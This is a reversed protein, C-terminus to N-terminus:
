TNNNLELQYRSLVLALDRGRVKGIVQVKINQGRMPIVQSGRPLNVLEPGKEGVLSLGGPAFNTGEAFGMFSGFGKGIIKGAGKALSGAGGSILDLLLFVAAKAAMFALLRKLESMMSNIMGKFGGEVNMFMAQFTNQLAEVALQQAALNEVLQPISSKALGSGQPAFMSVDARAFPEARKIEGGAAAADVDKIKGEVTTLQKTLRVLDQEGNSIAAFYEGITKIYNEFEDPKLTDELQKFLELSGLTLKLTRLEEKQADTLGKWQSTSFYTLEGIRKKIGEIAVSNEGFFYRYNGAIKRIAAINYAAEESTWQERTRFFDETIKLRDALEEVEVTTIAKQANIAEQIYQAKQAPDTTGAAGMRASQLEGEYIAKRVTNSASIMGLEQLATKLNRTAEATNVINSILKDWDGTVITRFLGQMTGQLTGMIRELRDASADTSEMAQKAAAVATGISLFGLSFTKLNKTVDGVTRKIDGVARQFGASDGTFKVGVSIEKQGAM